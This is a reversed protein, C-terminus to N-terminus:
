PRMTVVPITKLASAEHSPGRIATALAHTSFAVATLQEQGPYGSKWSSHTWEVGIIGAAGLSQAQAGLHSSVIHRNRYVGDTLEAVEFNSGAGMYWSNMQQYTFASLSALYVSSYGIVGCPSYGADLIQAFEQGSLSTLAPSTSGDRRRVQLAFRPSSLATGIVMFEVMDTEYDFRGMKIRVGAVADAGCLIAEQALRGLALRRAENYATTVSELVGSSGLPINQYGVRYISSGTVQSIPQMEQRKLFSFENVSLDSTFVASTSGKLSALRRAAEIPLGGAALSNQSELANSLREQELAAKEERSLSDSPSSASGGRRFLPM